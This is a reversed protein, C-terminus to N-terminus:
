SVHITFDQYAITHESARTDSTQGKLTLVRTKQSEGAPVVIELIVTANKSYPVPLLLSNTAGTSSSGSQYIIATWGAPVNQVDLQVSINMTGTNQVSVFFLAQGGPSINTENNGEVKMDFTDVYPIQYIPVFVFSSVLLVVAFAGVAIRKTDLKSVDNLPAPHNLGLVIILFAFLLWGLYFVFGLILLLAVTAFSLFIANKGLLGRAIHGGDLQGAPLLNIATVFIGVWAAFAMPHLVAGEPIPLLFMFLDFLLPTNIALQGAPVADPNPTAGANLLLGIILIPISMLLGAIPGAVGIDVLAKKNPMPERMSIFAGFTGIPPWAPIFYPLSADLDHRKSMFYHSLEHAGLILMLPLAFTLAGMVVNELSLAQSQNSYSAYLITGTYVTTLITATLFALNLWNRRKPLPPKRLVTIKYEGGSYELVPIYGRSYLDRRLAEFNQELTSQEPTVLLEITEYSVKVEYVKFHAAVLSKILNVEASQDM